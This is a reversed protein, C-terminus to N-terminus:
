CYIEAANAIAKRFWIQDDQHYTLKGTLRKYSPSTSSCYIIGEEGGTANKGNAQIYLGGTGKHKSIIMGCFESAYKGGRGNPGGEWTVLRKFDPNGECVNRLQADAKISDLFLITLSFFLLGVISRHKM